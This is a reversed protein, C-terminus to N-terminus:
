GLRKGAFATIQLPDPIVAAAHEADHVFNVAVEEDFQDFPRRRFLLFLGAEVRGFVVNFSQLTAGNDVTKSGINHLLLRKEELPTFTIYIFGLSHAVLPKSM